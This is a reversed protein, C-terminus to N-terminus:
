ISARRTIKEKVLTPRNRGTYSIGPSPVIAFPSRHLGSDPSQGLAAGKQASRLCTVYAERLRLKRVQLILKTHKLM